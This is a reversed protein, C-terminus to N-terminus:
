KFFHEGSGDGHAEKTGQDIQFRQCNKIFLYFLIYLIQLISNALICPFAHYEYFHMYCRSILIDDPIVHRLPMLLLCPVFCIFYCMVWTKNTKCALLKRCIFTTVLCNVTMEYYIVIIELIYESLYKGISGIFLMGIVIPNFTVFPWLSIHVHLIALTIGLLLSLKKNM